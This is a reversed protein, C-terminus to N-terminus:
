LLCHSCIFSLISVHIIGIHSMPIAKKREKLTNILLDIRQQVETRRMYHTTHTVVQGLCDSHFSEIEQMGQDVNFRYYTNPAKAFRALLEEATHECDTALQSLAQLVQAPLKPFSIPHLQGAGLSVVCALYELPFIKAAEELLVATPNNCRYSGNIFVENVGATTMIHIEKFLEHTASTARAAEWVMCNIPPEQQNEYSRFLTPRDAHERPVACVFIKCGNSDNLMRMEADGSSSNIIDKMSNQLKNASYKTRSRSWQKTESFVTQTLKVYEEIAKDVTLRLRGLLLAIIGGTGTGAIMDFYECPLPVTPLNEKQQIQYMITKLICLESLGRIGGGDFSLLRLGENETM